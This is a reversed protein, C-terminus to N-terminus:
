EIIRRRRELFVTGYIQNHDEEEAIHWQDDHSKYANEKLLADAQPWDLCTLELRQYRKFILFYLKRLTKM